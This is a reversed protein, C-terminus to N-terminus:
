FAVDDKKVMGQSRIKIGEQIEIYRKLGEIVAIKQELPLTIIKLFIDEIIDRLKRAEEETPLYFLVKIDKDEM